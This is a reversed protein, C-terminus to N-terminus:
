LAKECFAAIDDMVQERIDENLIEHRKGPYLKSSTNAYGREKLFNVAQKFKKHNILCPDDAGSLFLIPLAPNKVRWGKKSYAELMLSYLQEFGNATFMFGSLPDVDYESVNANTSSIWANPSGEHIFRRSFSGFSLLQLLFSRHHTGRIAGILRALWKGFGAARNYSPSGCVLLAALEDDHEKLYIRVIMSGMSHGFLFLPLDGFTEKAFCSVEYLDSVIASAGNEYLYGLDDKTRVSAGHGRHDHIICAFGKACMYEMLPLYREKHESMGHAIQFIAKPSGSDPLATFLELTLGDAGSTFRHKTLKM